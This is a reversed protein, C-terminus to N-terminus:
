KCYFKMLDYADFYGKDASKQLDKCAVERDGNLYHVVGLKYHYKGENPNKAIALTFDNIASPYDNTMFFSNGREFYYLDENPEVAIADNFDAIAASHNNLGGKAIGRYYYAKAVLPNNKTVV